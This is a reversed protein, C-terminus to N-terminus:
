KSKKYSKFAANILKIYEERDVSTAVVTNAPLGLSGNTDTVTCGRTYRGGLDIEVHYPKVEFIDPALLWAVPAADAIPLGDRHMEVESFEGLKKLPEYMEKAIRSGSLRFRERDEFTAVAKSTCDLGCMFIKLGSNLVIEAAEPDSEVNFEATPLVDGGFIAGGAFAIGKIKYLLNPHALIFTAINTLPGCCILIISEDTEEVTKAILEVASLNEPSKKPFHLKSTMGCTGDPELVGRGMTSYRLSSLIGKAAGRALPVNELGLLEMVRLTNMTVQELTSSGFCTTVAKIELYDSAAALMLAFIDDIGTDVDLIIPTKSM